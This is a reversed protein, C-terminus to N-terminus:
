LEQEAFAQPPTSYAAKLSLQMASLSAMAHLSFVRCGKDTDPVDTKRGFAV